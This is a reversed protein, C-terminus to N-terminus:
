KYSLKVFKGKIVYPKDDDPVSNLKFLYTGSIQKKRRDIETIKVNGEFSIFFSPNSIEEKTLIKYTLACQSVSVGTKYDFTQEYNGVKDSNITIIISKKTNKENQETSIITIGKEITANVPSFKKQLNNIETEFYNDPEIGKKECGSFIFGFILFVLFIITNIKM